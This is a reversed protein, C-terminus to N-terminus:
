NRVDLMPDLLFIRENTKEIKQQSEQLAEEVNEVNLIQPHHVSGCLPCPAGNELQKTWGSLKSQMKLHQMHITESANEEQLDNRWGHFLEVLNTQTKKRSEFEDSMVGQDVFLNKLKEETITKQKELSIIEDDLTRIQQRKMQDIHFWQQLASMTERDLHHKKLEKINKNIIELEADLNQKQKIAKDVELKGKDARSRNLKLNQRAALIENWQLLDKAQEQYKDKDRIFPALEELQQELLSFQSESDNISKQISILEDENKEHELSSEHISDIPKQFHELAYEYQSVQAKKEQIMALQAHIKEFEKQKVQLEETLSKLQELVSCKESVKRLEDKKQQVNKELTIIIGSKEKISEGSIHEYQLLKTRLVLINDDNINSIYAVQAYLEYKELHFIEKLMNTRDSSGLQLFEQFKGQPIIITRKFNQYSLGIIPEATNQELPIWKDEQWVYASRKPPYVDDFKSGHRKAQVRFKYVKQDFNRFEFDVEMENSRLNMMNYKRNDRQNLRETEGYLAFTIADLISSKGSGVAGFIGFIQGSILHKFEITQASQYSYLGKIKLRIPIM